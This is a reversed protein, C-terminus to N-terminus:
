EWVKPPRDFTAVGALWAFLVMQLTKLLAVIRKKPCIATETEVCLFNHAERLSWLRCSKALSLVSGLGKFEWSSTPYAYQTSVRKSCGRLNKKVNRRLNRWLMEQWDDAYSGVEIVRKPTMGQVYILCKLKFISWEVECIKYRRLHKDYLSESVTTRQSRYDFSYHRILAHHKQGHHREKQWRNWRTLSFSVELSWWKASYLLFLIRVLLIRYMM